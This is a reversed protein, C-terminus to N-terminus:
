VFFCKFEATCFNQYWIIKHVLYSGFFTEPFDFYRPKDRWWNKDRLIGCVWWIKFLNQILFFLVTSFYLTIGSYKLVFWFLLQMIFLRYSRYWLGAYSKIVFWKNWGGSHWSLCFFTLAIGLRAVPPPTTSVWLFVSSTRSRGERLKSHGWQLLRHPVRWICLLVASEQCSWEGGHLVSLKIWM